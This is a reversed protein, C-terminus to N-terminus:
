KRILTLIQNKFTCCFVILGFVFLILIRPYIIIKQLFDIEFNVDILMTMLIYVCYFCTLSFLTSLTKFLITM